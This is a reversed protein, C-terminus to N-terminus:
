FKLLNSADVRRATPATRGEANSTMVKTSRSRARTRQRCWDAAWLLRPKYWKSARSVAAADNSGGSGGGGGGRRDTMTKRRMGTTMTTMLHNRRRRPDGALSALVRRPVTGNVFSQRAHMVQLNDILMVDGHMWPVAVAEEEFIRAMAEMAEEPMAGGDGFVVSRGPNNLEDRWGLHAALIQNFFTKKKTNHEASRVGPLTASYHRLPRRELIFRPDVGGPIDVDDEGLRRVTQGTGSLKAELEEEDSVGFTKSWGRGIASSPRDDKTMVRTYRVGKAELEDMFTPCEARLRDYALHCDLLPTAGGDALPGHGIM